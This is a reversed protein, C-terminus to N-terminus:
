VRRPVKYRTLAGMMDESVPKVQITVEPLSFTPPVKWTEDPHLLPTKQAHPISTEGFQRIIESGALFTPLAEDDGQFAYM